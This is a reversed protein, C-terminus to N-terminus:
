ISPNFYFSLSNEPLGPTLVRHKCAACCLWFSFFDFSLFIYIVCVHLMLFRTIINVDSLTSKLVLLIVLSISPYKRITFPEIWLSVYNQTTFHTFCFRTSSLPSVSLDVIIDSSKLVGRETILLVLLCDNLYWWDVKGLQCKLYREGELSLLLCLRKLHALFMWCSFGHQVM